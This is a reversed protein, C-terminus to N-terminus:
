AIWFTVLLRSTMRQRKQPVKGRRIAMQTKSRSYFILNAKTHAVTHISVGQLYVVIHDTNFARETFGDLARQKTIDGNAGHYSFILRTEVNYDYNDPLWIGYKRTGDVTNITSKTFSGLSYTLPSGCGTTIARSCLAGAALLPMLLPTCLAFKMM